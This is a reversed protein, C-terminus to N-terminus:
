DKGGFLLAAAVIAALAGLGEFANEARRADVYLGPEAHDPLPSRGVWRALVGAWGYYTETLSRVAEDDMLYSVAGSSDIVTPSEYAAKFARASDGFRQLTDAPINDRNAQVKAILGRWLGRLQEMQEHVTM